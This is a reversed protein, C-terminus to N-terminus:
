LEGLKQAEHVAGDILVANLTRVEQELSKEGESGGQRTGLEQVAQRQNYRAVRDQATYRVGKQKTSASSGVAQVPSSSSDEVHVRINGSGLKAKDIQNGQAVFGGSARRKRALRPDMCQKVVELGFRDTTSWGAVTISLIGEVPGHGEESVCLEWKFILPGHLRVIGYGGERFDFESVSAGFISSLVSLEEIEVTMIMNGLSVRSINGPRLLRLLAMASRGPIPPRFTRQNNITKIDKVIKGKAFEVIAHYFPVIYATVRNDQLLLCMQM